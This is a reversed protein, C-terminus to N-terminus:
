KKKPIYTPLPKRGIAKRSQNMRKVDKPKLEKYQLALVHDQAAMHAPMDDYARGPSNSVKNEVKEKGTARQRQRLYARQWRDEQFDEVEDETYAKPTPTKAAWSKGAETQDDSHVPKRVGMSAAHEHAKNWMQTAIGQHRASPDVFVHNVEGDHGWALYGVTNGRHTATVHSGDENTRGSFTLSEFDENNRGM